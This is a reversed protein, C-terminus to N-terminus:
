EYIQPMMNEEGAAAFRLAKLTRAVEGNSRKARLERRRREQHRAVSEDIQLIEIPAEETIYANTGVVTKEKRDLAQQYEYAADAIEQQQFGRNIAAIMGGM